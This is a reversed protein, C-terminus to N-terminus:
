STGGHDCICILNRRSYTEIVVSLSLITSLYALLEYSDQLEFWKAVIKPRDYLTQWLTDRERDAVTCRQVNHREPDNYGTSRQVM